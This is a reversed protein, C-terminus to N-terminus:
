CNKGVINVNLFEEQFRRLFSGRAVNSYSYLIKFITHFEACQEVIEVHFDLSVSLDFRNSSDIKNSFDGVSRCVNFDRLRSM